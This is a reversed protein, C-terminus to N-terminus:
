LLLVTTCRNNMNNHKQLKTQLFIAYFPVEKNFTSSNIVCFNILSFFNPFFRYCVFHWVTLSKYEVHMVIIMLLGRTYM